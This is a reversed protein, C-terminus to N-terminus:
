ALGAAKRYHSVTAAILDSLRKCDPAVDPQRALAAALDPLRELQPLNEVLSVDESDLAADARNHDSISVPTQAKQIALFIKAIDPSKGFIASVTLFPLVDPALCALVIGKIESRAHLPGFLRLARWAYPSHSTKAMGRVAKAVPAGLAPLAEEDAISLVLVAALMAPWVQSSRQLASAYTATLAECRAPDGLWDRVAGRLAARPEPGVEPALCATAAQLVALSLSLLHDSTMESSPRDLKPLDALWDFWLRAQRSAVTAAVSVDLTAFRATVLDPSMPKTADEDVGASEALVTPETAWIPRIGLKGKAQVSDDWATLERREWPRM